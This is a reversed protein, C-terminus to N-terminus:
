RALKSEFESFCSCAESAAAVQWLALLVMCQHTSRASNGAQWSSDSVCTTKKAERISTSPNDFFLILDILPLIFGSLFMLGDTRFLKNTSSIDMQPVLDTPRCSISETISVKYVERPDLKSQKRHELTM